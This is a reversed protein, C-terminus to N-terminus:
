WGGDPGDLDEPTDIDHAPRGTVRVERPALGLLQRAPRGGPDLPLHAQLDATRYVALLPNARGEDDVAVAAVAGDDVAALLAPLAQAGHPMDGALVAVLDTGVARVGAAVAALPGGRPPDELLWVAGAREIPRSPGVLVVPWASPLGALVQDLLTRGGRRVSLKDGPFRSSRGGALVLVTVDERASWAQGDGM